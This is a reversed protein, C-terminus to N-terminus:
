SEDAPGHTVMYRFLAPYQAADAADPDNISLVLDPEIQLRALNEVLTVDTGALNRADGGPGGGFVAYRAKRLFAGWQLDQVCQRCLAGDVAPFKHCSACAQQDVAFPPFVFSEEQWRGGRQLVERFRQDKRGALRDMARKVVGGFGHEQGGALEAGSFPAWALNLALLGNMEHHFWGDLRRQVETLVAEVSATRPLLLYFKGGSAMITNTLPLDLSRLIQLPVTESLLQVFLSRARLRRAIGKGIDEATAVGFIYEQIGSVDGVALIFREAERDVVAAEEWVGTDEIVYYLCAAIAATTRMHDFLSVDPVLEQTDSPVAWTFTQLLGLLQALLVDFSNGAEKLLPAARAGFETL